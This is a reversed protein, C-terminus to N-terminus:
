RSLLSTGSVAEEALMLDAHGGNFWRSVAAEFRKAAREHSHIYLKDAIGQIRARIQSDSRTGFTHEDITRAATDLQRQDCTGYRHEILRGLLERRRLPHATRVAVAECGEM